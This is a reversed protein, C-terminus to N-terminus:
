TRWRPAITAAIRRQTTNLRALLDRAERQLKTLNNQRAARRLLELVDEAHALLAAKATSDM